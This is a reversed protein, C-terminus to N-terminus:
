RRAARRAPERHGGRPQPGAARVLGLLRPRPDAGLHRRAVPGEHHARQDLSRVPDLGGRHHGLGLAQGAGLQGPQPDPQEVALEGRRLLLPDHGLEPGTASSTSTAVVTISTPTSTGSAVTMTM